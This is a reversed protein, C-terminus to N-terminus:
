PVYFKMGKFADDFIRGSAQTDTAVEVLRQKPINMEGMISLVISSKLNKSEFAFREPDQGAVQKWDGGLTLVFEDHRIDVALASGM